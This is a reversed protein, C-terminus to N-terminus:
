IPLVRVPVALGDARDNLSLLLVDGVVSGLVSAGGSRLALGPVGNSQINSLFDDAKM